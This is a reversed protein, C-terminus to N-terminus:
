PDKKQAKKAVKVQKLVKVSELEELKRTFPLLLKEMRALARKRLDPQDDLLLESYRERVNEKEGKIAEVYKEVSAEIESRTLPGMKDMVLKESEKLVKMDFLEEQVDILLDKQASDSKSFLKVRQDGAKKVKEETEELLLIYADINKQPSESHWEKLNREINARLKKAYKRYLEQNSVFRNGFDEVKKKDVKFVHMAIKKGVFSIPSFLFRVSKQLTIFVSDQHDIIKKLGRSLNFMSNFNDGCQRRNNEFKAFVEGVEKVETRHKALKEKLRDVKGELNENDAKLVKLCNEYYNEGEVVKCAEGKYALELQTELLEIINILAKPMIAELTQLNTELSEKLAKKEKLFESELAAKREVSGEAAFLRENCRKELDSVQNFCQVINGYIASNKELGELTHVFFKKNDLIVSSQEVVDELDGLAEFLAEQNQGAHKLQTDLLMNMAAIASQEPTKDFLEPRARKIADRNRIAGADDLNGVQEQYMELLESDSRSRYYEQSTEYHKVSKIVAGERYLVNWDSVAQEGNNILNEKEDNTLKFNLTEVKADNIQIANFGYKHHVKYRDSLLAKKMGRLFGVVSHVTGDQQITNNTMGYKFNNIEKESDVRLGLTFPNVGINNLDSGMRCFKKEDYYEMPFNNVVGGDIFTSLQDGISIDYTEFAGPFSMTARVADAIKVNPTQEADFCQLEGGSGKIRTATLMLEKFILKSEPNMAIAKQLDAFTANPNGLKNAIKAQIWQFFVAGEHVGMREKFLSRGMGEVKNFWQRIKHDKTDMWQPYKSWYKSRADQFETFEMAEMETKIEDPTYGLALLVATIGGASSGGVRKISKLIGNKDLAQLAGVYAIGKVGGGELVLNEFPADMAITEDYPFTPISM